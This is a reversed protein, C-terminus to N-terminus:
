GLRFTDGKKGIRIITGKDLETPVNEDLRKGGLIYTGNSSYDTIMYKGTQKNYDVKCHKRSVQEGSLILQSVNADRGIVIGDGIEVVAGDYMGSLGTIKAGLLSKADGKKCAVILGYISVALALTSCIVFLWYGINLSNNLLLRAFDGLKDVVTDKLTDAVVVEAIDGDDVLSEEVSVIIANGAMRPLFVFVSFMMLLALTSFIVSLIHKVKKNGLWCVVITSLAFTWAIILAVIVFIKVNHIKKFNKDVSIDCLDKVIKAGSQPKLWTKINDGADNEDINEETGEDTEFDEFVENFADAIDESTVSIYPMFMTALAVVMFITILIKIILNKKKMSIGGGM